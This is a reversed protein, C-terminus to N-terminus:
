GRGLTRAFLAALEAFHREAGGEDYMSSDAMTFGHPAGPYIASTYAVGAADMAAEFAAVAEPPNSRDNDAHGALIEGRASMVVRHPSDEDDTVLNAAHFAGAAAVVDPRLGAARIATRGGICYGTVGFTPGVVGDLGLLTDAYTDLDRDAREPTYSSLRDGIGAFFEERAGPQRLDTAPALDVARGDRYFSNPALVVYGWGAIRDAMEEIRPRLGIADVHLLVGPHDGDDPRSVYAEATGAPMTIEITETLM